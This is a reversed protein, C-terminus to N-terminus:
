RPDPLGLMEVLHKRFCEVTVAETCHESAFAKAAVGLRKRLDANGLLREIAGAFDASDGPRVLLATQEDTAYDRIGVSDTIIQAKGIHMTGVATVHGNPTDKSRLPLAAIDSHWVISWARDWPLNTHVTVNQPLDIGELSHPRVILVFAVDPLKRAAECLTAYDRAEGGLAAVYSGTIERPGPQSIPPAVGWRLFIFREIPIRFVDSYLEREMTSYVMFRDIRSFARRMAALRYGGPIDTFNFAFALHPIHRHRGRGVAEAYYSTYPGHSVIFDTRGSAVIRRMALAARLRGLHPGPIRALLPSRHTSISRWEIEPEDRYLPEIWPWGPEGDHCNTVRVPRIM